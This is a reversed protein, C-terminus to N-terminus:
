KIMTGRHRSQSTAFRSDAILFVVILLNVFLGAFAVSSDLATLALSLSTIALLVPRWWFRKFVLGIASSIFGVAAVGWLVGFVTIGVEGLDWREGFMTTKYPLGQVETFRLYAVTGMVHVLGHLAIVVAAIVIWTRNM